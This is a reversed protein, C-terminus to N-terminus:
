LLSVCYRKFGGHFVSLFTKYNTITESIFVSFAIHYLLLEFGKNIDARLSSFGSDLSIIFLYVASFVCFILAFNLSRFSFHFSCDGEEVLEAIRPTRAQLIRKSRTSATAFSFDDIYIKDNSGAM